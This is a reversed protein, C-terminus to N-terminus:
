NAYLNVLRNTNNLQDYYSQTAQREQNFSEVGTNYNQQAARLKKFAKRRKDQMKRRRRGGGILSGIAGFAAGAIAGPVGFASGAIAGKGISSVVEGGSAGRPKISSANLASQGLNYVPRGNFDSQASPVYTSISNAEDGMAKSSAFIDLAGTGAQLGAALTPNNNGSGFDAIPKTTDFQMKQRGFRDYQSFDIPRNYSPTFNPNFYPNFQENM